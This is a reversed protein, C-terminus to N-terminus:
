SFKVSAGKYAGATCAYYRYAITKGYQNTINLTGTDWFAKEDEVGKAISAEGLASEYAYVYQHSNDVNIAITKGRSTSLESTLGKILAENITAGNEIQGFFRRYTLSVKFTASAEDNGEAKTVNNNADVMLGIKPAAVKATLTKAGEVTAEKYASVTNKDPLGGKPKSSDYWDTGKVIEVPDKYGSASNWKFGVKYTLKIGREITVSSSKEPATITNGSQNTATLSEVVITPTVVPMNKTFVADYVEKGKNGAFATDETEGLALGSAMAVLGTAEGAWRSSINTDINVYIKGSTPVRGKDGSEGYYKADKINGNETWNAFYADNADKAIFCKNPTYYYIGTPTTTSFQQVTINGMVIDDAYELVDDVFAPLYQEPIKGFSLPAAGVDSASLVPSDSIKKGNVTYNDVTTKAADIKQKAKNWLYSTGNKDLYDKDAM